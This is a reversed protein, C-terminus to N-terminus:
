RHSSSINEIGLRRDWSHYHNITNLHLLLPAAAQPFIRLDWYHASSEQALSRLTFTSDGGSNSLQDLRRSDLHTPDIDVLNSMTFDFDQEPIVKREM